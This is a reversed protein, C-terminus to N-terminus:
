QNINMVKVFHLASTILETVSIFLMDIDQAEVDFELIVRRKGCYSAYEETRYFVYSALEELLELGKIDLWSSLYLVPKQKYLNLLEVFTEYKPIENTALKYFERLSQQILEFVESGKFEVTQM